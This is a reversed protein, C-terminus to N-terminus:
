PFGLSEGSYSIDGSASGIVGEASGDASFFRVWKGAGFENLLCYQGWVGSSGVETEHQWNFTLLLLNYGKDVLETWKCNGVRVAGEAPAGRVTCAYYFWGAQETPNTGLLTVYFSNTASSPVSPDVFTATTNLTLADPEPTGGGSGGSGGGSGGGSDGGGSSGSGGSGGSSGGSSGGVHITVVTTAPSGVEVGTPLPVGFDLTVTEPAEEEQDALAIFAFTREREGSEFVITDPVGSYDSAEVNDGPTATLPIEVTREPDKDLMVTVTAATGGETATYQGAGFSVAVGPPPTPHPPTANRVLRDTIDPANNGVLDQVPTADTGDPATYSLRVEDSAGVPTLLTLTVTSDAISVGTVEGPAGGVTVSFADFAPESSEDLMEDYRLTLTPGNVVLSDDSRFDQYPWVGDVKHEEANTLEDLILLADYDDSDRITGDHMHLADAAISLGDPAEDGSPPDDDWGLFYLAWALFRDFGEGVSYRFVLVPTGSGTEYHAAREYPGTSDFTLFLHPTGTVTVSESFTVEIEIEEGGAYTDLAAPESSIELSSVYPASTTVVQDTLAAVINGGEDRIPRTEVSYSVTVRDTTAVPSALTLTVFRASIARDSVARPADNVMVTYASAPTNSYLWLTESYTLVLHAGHVAATWLVPTIGDVRRIYHDRHAEHALDADIDTNNRKISGGNLKLANANITLGDTDEDTETVTYRFVLETSPPGSQYDAQRTMSEIPLDIQPMGTVAVEESFTVTVEIIDDLKYRFLGDTFAVEEVRPIADQGEVPLPLLVALLILTVAALPRPSPCRSSVVSMAEDYSFLEMAWKVRADAIM